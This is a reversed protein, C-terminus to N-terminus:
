LVIKIAKNSSLVTYDVQLKSDLILADSETVATFKTTAKAEKFSSTSDDAAPITFLNYGGQVVTVSTESDGAFM